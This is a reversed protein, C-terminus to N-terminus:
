RRKRKRSLVETRSYIGTLEGSALIKGEMAALVADKDADAELPLMDELAYVKFSYRQSKGSEPCPGQYEEKLVAKAGTLGELTNALITESPPINWVLWGTLPELMDEGDEVLLVLSKTESPIGNVILTPHVDEGDCTCRRPMTGENAFDPSIIYLPAPQLLLTFIFATLYM